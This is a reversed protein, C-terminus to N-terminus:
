FFTGLWDQVHRWVQRYTATFQHDGDEIWVLRKPEGASRYIIEAEAPPVLADKKGHIVLLPRPSLRAAEAAVDYRHLDALFNKKVSATGSETRFVIRDKEEASIGAFLDAPRAPAAWVCVGAATGNRGAQCIATTGGFSRGLTVLSSFGNERCWSLACTLDDIQGTLTLEEFSGESEGCGAFDFLLVAWSLKGLEEAMELAKGGGEKSGTFGHCVVIAKETSVPPSHLLGAIKERKSNLFSVRRWSSKSLM